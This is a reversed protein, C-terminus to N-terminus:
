DDVGEMFEVGLFMQEGNGFDFRHANTSKWKRFESKLINDETYILVTECGLADLQSVVGSDIGYANWKKLLHEPKVQRKFTKTEEDYQGVSINKDKRPDYATMIVM